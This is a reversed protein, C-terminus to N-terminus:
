GRSIEMRLDKLLQPDSQRGLRAVLVTNQAQLDGVQEKLIEMQKLAVDRETKVKELEMALNTKEEREIAKRKREEAKRTEQLRKDELRKLERRYKEEQKAIEREHKDRIKAIAAQDRQADQDKRSLAREQARQTKEALKRQREELKRLDKEHQISYTTSKAMASMDSSHVSQTEGNLTHAETSGAMSVKSGEEDHDSAFSHFSHESASDDDDESHQTASMDSDTAVSLAAGFPNPLRSAAAGLAGAIMGYFGSPRVEAEDDTEWNKAAQKPIPEDAPDILLNSTPDAPGIKQQTEDSEIQTAGQKLISHVADAEVFEHMKKKSIWKMFKDADSAIGAPTGKEVMFRPVSGGPDSRTVMLWEVITECQEDAEDNQDTGAFTITRGRKRGDSEGADSASSALAANRAARTAAEKSIAETVSRRAEASDENGVDISSRTRRLPREVKIERIFEVSEYQGRIYGDRPPCEPHVCPKSILMFYRPKGKFGEQIPNDIASDSSLLLTIFDRPTTPGPFQASLQYVEVKGCGDVVTNEVRKDAGIGRIKGDGPKGQVQLSEAFETEMGLKWKEFTLGEHVSRRAFWAGKRDKSALKYVNIGLPNDRPNVQVEKWENRLREARESSQPARAPLKTASPDTVARPRRGPNPQLSAKTNLSLPISDILCQADMFIDTLFPKLKAQDITSWDIPALATFAEHPNAM